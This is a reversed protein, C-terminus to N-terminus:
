TINFGDGSTAGNQSYITEVLRQHSGQQVLFLVAQECPLAAHALPFIFSNWGMLAALFGIQAPYGALQHQSADM